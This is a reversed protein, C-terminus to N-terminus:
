HSKRFFIARKKPSVPPKRVAINARSSSSLTSTDAICISWTVLVYM